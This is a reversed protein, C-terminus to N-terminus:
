IETLKANEFKKLIADIKNQIENIPRVGTLNIIKKGYSFFILNPIGLVHFRKAIANHNDINLKAFAVKGQYRKSLQRLRPSIIKCPKCWPAWFDVVALPFKEIFRDFKKENLTVIHDPWANKQPPIKDLDPEWRNISSKFLKKLDM